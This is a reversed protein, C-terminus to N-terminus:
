LAFFRVAQFYFQQRLNPAARIFNSNKKLSIKKDVPLSPEILAFTNTHFLFSALLVIQFNSFEYRCDFAAIRFFRVTM